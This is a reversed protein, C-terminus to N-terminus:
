TGANMPKMIKEKQWPSPLVKAEVQNDGALLKIWQRRSLTVHLTDSGVVIRKITSKVDQL